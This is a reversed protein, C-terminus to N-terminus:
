ATPINTEKRRICPKQMCFMVRGPPSSLLNKVQNYFSSIYSPSSYNVKSKTYSKLFFLSISFIAMPLCHGSLDKSFLYFNFHIFPRIYLLLLLFCVFIVSYFYLCHVLWSFLHFISHMLWPVFLVFLSYSFPLPFYPLSFM